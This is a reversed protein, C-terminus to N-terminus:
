EAFEFKSVAHESLRTRCLLGGASDALKREARVDEQMVFILTKIYRMHCDMHMRSFRPTVRHSLKNSKFAAFAILNFACGCRDVETGFTPVIQKPHWPSVLPGRM